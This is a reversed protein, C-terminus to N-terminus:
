NQCANCLSCMYRQAISQMGTAADNALCPTATSNGTWDFNTLSGDHDIDCLSVLMTGNIMGFFRDKSQTLCSSELAQQASLFADIESVTVTEDHNGDLFNLICAKLEERSCHAASATALGLLLLVLILRMLKFPRNLFLFAANCILLRCKKNVV